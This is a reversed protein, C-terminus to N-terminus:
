LKGEVNRLRYLIYGMSVTSILALVGLSAGWALDYPNDVLFLQHGVVDLNRLVSFIYYKDEGSTAVAESAIALTFLFTIFIGVTAWRHRTTSASFALGIFSYVLVYIFSYIIVPGITWIYELGDPGSVLILSSWHLLAPLTVTLSMLMMAGVLRGSLYDLRSMPRTFYLYISKDAMDNSILRGVSLSAVTIAFFTMRDRTFFQLSDEPTYAEAAGVGALIFNTLLHGLINVFWIIGILTKFWTQKWYHKLTIIGMSWIIYPRDKLEQDAARYKGALYGQDHGMGETKSQALPTQRTSYGGAEPYPVADMPGDSPPLNLPQGEQDAKAPAPEAVKEDEMGPEHLENGEELDEKM